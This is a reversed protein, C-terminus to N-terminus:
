GLLYETREIYGPQENITFLDEMSNNSRLFSKLRRFCDKAHDKSDFVFTYRFNNSTYVSFAKYDELKVTVIHDAAIFGNKMNIIKM